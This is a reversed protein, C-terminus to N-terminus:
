KRRTPSRCKPQDTWLKGPYFTLHLHTGAYPNYRWYPTLGSVIFGTNGMLGIQAGAEVQQGLFVDIRTLPKL